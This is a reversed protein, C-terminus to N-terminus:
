KKGAAAPQEIIKGSKDDYRYLGKRFKEVDLKYRGAFVVELNRLKAVEENVVQQLVAVRLDQNRLRNINAILADKEQKAKDAAPVRNEEKVVAKDEKQGQAALLAPHACVSTLVLVVFIWKKM